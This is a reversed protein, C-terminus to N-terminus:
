VKFEYDIYLKVFEERNHRTVPINYGGECLEVEETVGFREVDVTFTRCLLDELPCKSHDKYDL